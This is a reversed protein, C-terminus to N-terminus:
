EKIISDPKQFKAERRMKEYNEYIAKKLNTSSVGEGYPFYFVDVGLDKLYDYKGAWDDGVVFADINLKKVIETHDLTHQPIVIDPQKLSEIIQIREKFPITPAAKNFVGITPVSM